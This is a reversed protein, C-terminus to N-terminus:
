NHGFNLWLPHFPLISDCHPEFRALVGHTYKWYPYCGPALWRTRTRHCSTVWIRAEQETIVRVTAPNGQVTAVVVYMTCWYMVVPFSGKSSHDLAGGQASSSSHYARIRSFILSQTQSSSSLQVLLNAATNQRIFTTNM